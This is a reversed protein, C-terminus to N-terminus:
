EEALEARTRQVDAMLNAHLKAIPSNPYAEAFPQTLDAGEQFAARAERIKESKRLITGLSGLSLALDSNFRAPNAQALQRYLDVAEKIAAM